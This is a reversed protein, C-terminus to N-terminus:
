LRIKRFLEALTALWSNHQILGKAVAWGIVGILPKMVIKKGWAWAIPGVSRIAQIWYWFDAHRKGFKRCIIGYREQLDGVLADCNQPTLFLYFCFEGVHPPEPNHRRPTKKDHSFWAVFFGIAATAIVLTFGTSWSDDTGVKGGPYPPIPAGALTVGPAIMVLLLLFLLVSATKSM